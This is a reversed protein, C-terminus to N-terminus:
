DVRRRNSGELEGSHEIRQRGDGHLNADTGAMGGSDAVPQCDHRSEGNRHGGPAPAPASALVLEFRPRRLGAHAWDADFVRMFWGSGPAGVSERGGLWGRHHHGGDAVNAAAVSGSSRCPASDIFRERCEAGEHHDDFLGSNNWRRSCDLTSQVYLQQEHPDTGSALLQLRADRKRCVDICRETRRQLQVGADNTRGESYSCHRWRHDVHLEPARNGDTLFRDNQDGSAWQDRRTSYGDFDGASHEHWRKRNAYSGNLQCGDSEGHELAFFQL